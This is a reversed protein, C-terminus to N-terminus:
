VPVGVLPPGDAGARSSDSPRWLIGVDGTPVFLKFAICENGDLLTLLLLYAETLFWFTWGNFRSMCFSLVTELSLGLVNNPKWHFGSPFAHIKSLIESPQLRWIVGGWVARKLVFSEWFCVVFFKITSGPTYFGLAASFVFLCFAAVFGMKLISCHLCHVLSFNDGQITVEQAKGGPTGRDWYGAGAAGARPSKRRRSCAVSAWGVHSAKLVM